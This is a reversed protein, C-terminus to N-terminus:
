AAREIEEAAPDRRADALQLPQVPELSELPQSRRGFRAAAAFVANSVRWGAYGVVAGALVDVVYHEGLYVLAFGMAAPYGIALWRLRRNARFAALGIVLTLALHMSPMAAVENVRAAAYSAEFTSGGAQSLVEYAVRSVGPAADLEAAMWPPATPVLFMLLVALYSTALFAVAYRGLLVPRLLLLAFLMAQHAFFFTTYVTMVAIDFLRIEGPAYLREQLWATPLRGLGLLQDLAVPYDVRAAIATEDAALWFRVWIEAGLLYAPIWAIRSRRAGFVLLATSLLAPWGWVLWPSSVLRLSLALAVSLFTAAVLRVTSRRALFRLLALPDRLPAPRPSRM